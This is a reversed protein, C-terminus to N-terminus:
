PVGHEVLYKVVDEHGEECANYLPTFGDNDEKNIDTGHEVLYKIIIMHGGICVNFIPTIGGNNSIFYAVFVFIFSSM